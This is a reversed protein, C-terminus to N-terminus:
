GQKIEETCYGREFSNGSTGAVRRKEEEIELQDISTIDLKSKLAKQCTLKTEKLTREEKEIEDLRRSLAEQLTLRDEYIEKIEQVPIGILRM